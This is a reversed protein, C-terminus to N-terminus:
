LCAYWIYFAVNFKLLMEKTEIFSYSFVSNRLDVTWDFCPSYCERIGNSNMQLLELWSCVCKRTKARDFAIPQSSTSFFVFLLELNRFSIWEYIWGTGNADTLPHMNLAVSNEPLVATKSKILIEVLQCHAWSTEWETCCSAESWRERLEPRFSWFLQM